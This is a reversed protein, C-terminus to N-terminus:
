HFVIIIHLDKLLINMDKKLFYNKEKEDLLIVDNDIEIGFLKDTDFLNNLKARIMINSNTLGIMPIYMNPTNHNFFLLPLTFKYHDGMDNLKVLKNFQNKKSDSMHLNYLTKLIVPNLTDIKNENIYLDIYEFLNFHIDTYDVEKEITTTTKTIIEKRELNFKNDDFNNNSSSFEGQLLIFNFLDGTYNFFDKTDILVDISTNNNQEYISFDINNNVNYLTVNNVVITM